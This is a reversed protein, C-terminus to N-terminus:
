AVTEALAASQARRRRLWAVVCLGALAAGAIGGTAAPEPVPTLRGFLGNAEDNLGATFYLWSAKSGNAGNGFALGWLGDIAIPNGQSDTLPGLLTGAPDFVNIRGDGFNGVLLDGEFKGFGAPVIAVGWPANLVGGASIRQVFNGSLDFKDVVGLGAGDVEDGGEGGTKAYTVYLAGGLNQVNFPAYGSPLSPDTFMGSLAPAGTGPVVDVHGSAFNAAYLYTSPGVNGIALGKYSAGSGSNDVLTEATSGLAGRWGAITGDESAFLFRDGNFSTSGNAVQGTVAAGGGGPAPVNVVLPLSGGTGTVVSAKGTGNDSIWFPSSGSMAIGWPNVLNVDQHAAVGPLDSILNTQQYNVQAHLGAPGSALAVATFLPAFPKPQIRFRKM